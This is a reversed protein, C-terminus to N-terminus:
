QSLCFIGHPSIKEGQGAFCKKDSGHLKEVILLGRRGKRGGATKKWRTESTSQRKEQRPTEKKKKM